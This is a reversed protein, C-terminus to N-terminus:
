MRNPLGANEQILQRNAEELKLIQAQLKDNQKKIELDQVVFPEQDTIQKQLRKTEATLTQITQSQTAITALHDKIEDTLRNIEIAAASGDDIVPIRKRQENKL